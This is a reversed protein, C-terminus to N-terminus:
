TPTAANALEFNLRLLALAPNAPFIGFSAALEDLVAGAAEATAVCALVNLSSLTYSVNNEQEKEIAVKAAKYAHSSLIDGAQALDGHEIFSLQTVTQGALIKLMVRQQSTRSLRPLLSLLLPNLEKEELLRNALREVFEDAASQVVVQTLCADASPKLAGEGDFQWCDIFEAESVELAAALELLSSMELLAARRLAQAPSKLPKARISKSRKFIGKNGVEFFATLEALDETTLGKSKHHLRALLRAALARIKGSRDGALSQLYPVDNEGLGVTLTEILALRREAPEEGAKATVLQLARAPEQRRLAKLLLRREAPYFSDWTEEDLEDAGKKEEKDLSQVWDQWPAYLDPVNESSAAPMWDLPHASFGRREALRLAALQDNGPAQRLAQRFLPRLSDPITPLALHPLDKQRAIDGPLAPRFAVDWAQGAVAVLRRECEEASAAAILTRWAEPALSAANGGTIWCDRIAAFQMLMQMSM